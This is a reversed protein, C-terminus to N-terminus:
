KKLWKAYKKMVQANDVGAGHDLEKTALEVETKIEDHLEDWLDPTEKKILTSIKELLQKSEINLIIQTLKVKEAYLSM